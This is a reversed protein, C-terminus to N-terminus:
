IGILDLHVLEVPLTGPSVLVIPGNQMKSISMCQARRLWLGCALEAESTPAARPLACRGFGQVATSQLDYYFSM